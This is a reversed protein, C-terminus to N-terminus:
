FSVSLSPLWQFPFPILHRKTKNQKTQKKKRKSLIYLMVALKHPSLLIETSLLCSSRHHLVASPSLTHSGTGPCLVWGQGSCPPNMPLCLCSGPRLTSFNTTQIPQFINYLASNSIRKQNSKSNKMSVSLLTILHLLSFLFTCILWRPSHSFSYALNYPLLLPGSWTLSYHNFLFWLFTM